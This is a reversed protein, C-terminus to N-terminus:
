VVSSLSCIPLESRRCCLRHTPRAGTIPFPHQEARTNSASRRLLANIRKSESPDFSSASCCSVSGMGLGPRAWALDPFCPWERQTVAEYLRAILEERIAEDFESEYHPAALSTRYVPDGSLEIVIEDGAQRVDFTVALVTEESGPRTWSLARKTDTVGKFGHRLTNLSIGRGGCSRVCGKAPTGSDFAVYQFTWGSRRVSFVFRRNFSGRGSRGCLLPPTLYDGYKGGLAM